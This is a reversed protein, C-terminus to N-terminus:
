RRAFAGEDTRHEPALHKRKLGPGGGLSRSGIELLAGIPVAEIRMASRVWRLYLDM